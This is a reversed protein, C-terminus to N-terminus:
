VPIVVNQLVNPLVNVLLLGMEKLENKCADKIRQVLEEGALEKSVGIRSFISFLSFRKRASTPVDVKLEPGHM